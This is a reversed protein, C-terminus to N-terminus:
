GKEMAAAPCWGVAPHAQPAEIRFRHGEASVVSLLLNSSRPTNEEAFGTSSEIQCPETPSTIEGEIVEAGSRAMGNTPPGCSKPCLNWCSAANERRLLGRPHATPPRNKQATKFDWLRQWYVFFSWRDARSGYLVDFHIVVLHKAPVFHCPLPSVSLATTNTLTQWQWEGSSSWSGCRSGLFHFLSPRLGGGGSENAESRQQADLSEFFHLEENNRAILKNMDKNTLREASGNPGTIAYEAKRRLVEVLYQRREEVGTKGDFFGGTTVVFVLCLAVGNLSNITDMLMANLNMMVRIAQEWEWRTKAINAVNYEETWGYICPPM